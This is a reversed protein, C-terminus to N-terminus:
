ALEYIPLCTIPIITGMTAAQLKLQYKTVAVIQRQTSWPWNVSIYYSIIPKNAWRCSSGLLKLPARIVNGPRLTGGWLGLGQIRCLKFNRNRPCFSGWLLCQFHLWLPMLGARFLRRAPVKASVIFTFLSLTLRETLDLEKHDWPSYGAMSKQGHLKGPLFVPTPLWKRRCPM